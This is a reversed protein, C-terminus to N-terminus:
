GGQEIKDIADQAVKLVHDLDQIHPILMVRRTGENAIANGGSDKSYFKSAALYADEVVTIGTGAYKHNAIMAEAATLLRQFEQIARQDVVTMLDKISIDAGISYSYRDTV